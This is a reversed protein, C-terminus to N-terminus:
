FYWNLGMRLHDDRALFFLPDKPDADVFARLTIEITMSEGIRREGELTILTHHHDTDTIFGGLLQTDQTDNVTYRGGIFVDRDFSTAPSLDNRDDWLYEMLVGIDASSEWVQYFTYEAGIVAAFFNDVRTDRYILESKLLWAEGTYQVDLGTQRMQDYLPILTTFDPALTFRAERSTGDFYSLGLDVEGFVQSYRVAWDHHQEEDDSEYLAQENSVLLDSRFRGSAGSFSLERFRPLWFLSVQGWDFLGNLNVMPQGLKDEQDVDELADTQNIVDVLHRSETVGWFVKNIGVLLDWQNAQYYVYLERLDAHTREDDREDWRYFGLLQWRLDSDEAQYSFEPQLSVSTQHHELQDTSTPTQWFARHEIGLDLSSELKAWAITTSALPAICLLSVLNRTRPKKSTTKGLMAKAQATLNCKM